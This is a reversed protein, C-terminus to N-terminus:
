RRRRRRRVDSEMASNNAARQNRLTELDDHVSLAVHADLLDVLCWKEEVESLSARNREHTLLGWVMWDIGEPVPVTM